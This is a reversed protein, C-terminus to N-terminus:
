LSCITSFGQAQEDLLRRSAEVGHGLLLLLGPEALLARVAVRRDVVGVLTVHDPPAALAGILEAPKEPVVEALLELLLELPFARAARRAAADLEDDPED